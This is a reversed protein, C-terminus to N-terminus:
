LRRRQRHHVAHDIRLRRVGYVRLLMDTLTAGFATAVRLTDKLIRSGPSDSHASQPECAGIAAAIPAGVTGSYRHVVCVEGVRKAFHLFLCLAAPSLSDLLELWGAPGSSVGALTALELSPTVAAAVLLAPLYIILMGTRTPVGAGKPAFKSYPTTGGEKSENYWSILVMACQLATIVMGQASSLCVAGTLWGSPVAATQWTLAALWRTLSALLPVASCRPRVGTSETLPGEMGLLVAAIM